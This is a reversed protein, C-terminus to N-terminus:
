SQRHLEYFSHCSNGTHQKGHLATNAGETMVSDAFGPYRRCMYTCPSTRMVATLSLSKRFQKPRKSFSVNPLLCFMVVRHGNKILDCIGDPCDPQVSKKWGTSAGVQHSGSRCPSLLCLWSSGPLCHSREKRISTWRRRCTLWVRVRQDEPSTLAHAMCKRM